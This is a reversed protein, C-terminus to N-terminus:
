KCIPISNRLLLAQYFDSTFSAGGLWKEDEREGSGTGGGGGGGGGWLVCVVEGLVCELGTGKQFNFINM